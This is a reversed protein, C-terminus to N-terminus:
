QGPPENAGEPPVSGTSKRFPHPRILGEHGHPCDDPPCGCSDPPSPRADATRRQRRVKEPLDKDDIYDWWSERVKFRSEGAWAALDRLERFHKLEEQMALELGKAKEDFYRKLIHLQNEPNDSVPIAVGKEHLDVIQRHYHLVQYAQKRLVAEITERPPTFEIMFKGRRLARDYAEAYDKLMMIYMGRFELVARLQLNSTVAGVVFLAMLCWFMLRPHSLWFTEGFALSGCLVGVALFVLFWWGARRRRVLETELAPKYGEPGSM